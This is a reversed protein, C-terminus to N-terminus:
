QTEIVVVQKGALPNPQELYRAFFTGREAENMPEIATEGEHSPDYADDWFRADKVKEKLWPTLARMARPIMHTMIGTEGTLFGIDEYVFGIETHLKHTTLNRLRLNNM